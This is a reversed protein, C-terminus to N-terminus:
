NLLKKSLEVCKWGVPLLCGLILIKILDGSLFPLLGLELTAQWDNQFVRLWLLGPLYILLHGILMAYVSSNFKKDWGSQALFGVVTSAVLYGFIYGGSAGTLIGWGSVGGPFIALGM